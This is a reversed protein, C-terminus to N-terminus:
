FQRTINQTSEFRPECPTDFSFGFVDDFLFDGFSGLFSQVILVHFFGHAHGTGQKGLLDFSRPINKPHSFISGPM